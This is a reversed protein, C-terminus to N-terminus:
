KIICINKNILVYEQIEKLAPVKPQKFLIWIDLQAMSVRNQKRTMDDWIGMYEGRLTELHRMLYIDYGQSYLFDM